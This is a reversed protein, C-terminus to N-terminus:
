HLNYEVTTVVRVKKMVDNGSDYNSNADSITFLGQTARRIDGLQSKSNTAFSQAAENANDTADTLMEPKIDNLANFRYLVSSTTLVIGQEVLAGTKQMSRTVKDVETTSVTLGADASYRPLNQNQNYNVSQNDTVTVPNMNMEQAKFGEQVLFAQIKKQTQSLNQYLEPLQNNVLKFNLTWIAQDSKVIREALGKVQVTRVPKRSEMIGYSVFYGGLAIGISLLIAAVIKPM